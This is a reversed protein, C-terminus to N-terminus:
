QNQPRKIFEIKIPDETRLVMDAIFVIDDRHTIPSLRFNMLISEIVTKIELLAFKQGICNRPGASFPLYAFPHRREVHEPLFRDPDFREPDPFVEPDRHLDFILAEILTKAPVSYGNIEQDETLERSIYPVPPYLRLCEKIVRDTYVMNSYDAIELPSGNKEGRISMIERYVKEQVAPNEALSFLIMTIASATTDHGEFTFTDVEERIGELDIQDNQEALLLTDLMAHRERRDCTENNNVTPQNDKFKCCRERIIKRTFSHIPTLIQWLVNEYGMIRFVFDSRLWPKIFRLVLVKGTQHIGERYVQSEEQSDLTVGMATECIVNLTHKSIIKPLNVPNEAFKVQTTLKAGERQFIKVFQQLINFHFAPTLIKRRHAWKKGNSILLGEGLFPVLFRYVFGKKAHKASSLIKEMDEAKIIRVYATGLCWFAYSKKYTQAYERFSTFINVRNLSLALKIAQCFTLPAPGGLGISAKYSPLSKQYVDLLKILSCIVIIVSLLLVFM